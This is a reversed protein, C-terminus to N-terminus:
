HLIHHCGHILDERVNHEITMSGQTCNVLEKKLQFVQPGKRQQFQVHLAVDESYIVSAAIEKTISILLWSSMTSNNRIWARCHPDDEALEPISGNVFGIKNKDDLALAM